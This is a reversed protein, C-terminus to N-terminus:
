GRQSIDERMFLLMLVTDINNTVRLHGSKGQRRHPFILYWDSPRDAKGNLLKHLIKKKLQNMICSKSRKVVFISRCCRM